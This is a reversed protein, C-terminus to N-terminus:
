LDTQKEIFLPRDFHDNHHIQWQLNISFKFFKYIELSSQM